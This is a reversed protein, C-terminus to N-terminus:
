GAKNGINPLKKPLSLTKREKGQKIRGEYGAPLNLSPKSVYEKGEKEAAEKEKTAAIHKKSIETEIVERLRPIWHVPVAFENEVLETGFDVTKTQIHKFKKVGENIESLKANLWKSIKSRNTEKGEANKGAGVLKIRAGLVFKKFFGEMVGIEVVRCQSMLLYAEKRAATEKAKSLKPDAETSIVTSNGLRGAKLSTIGFAYFRGNNIGGVSAAKDILTPMYKKNYEEYAEKVTDASKMIFKDDNKPADVDVVDKPIDGVPVMDVGEQSEVADEVTEKSDLKDADLEVTQDAEKLYQEVYERFKM